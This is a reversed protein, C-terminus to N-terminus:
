SPSIRESEVAPVFRRLPSSSIEEKFLSVGNMPICLYVPILHQHYGTSSVEIIAKCKPLPADAQAIRFPLDISVLYKKLVWDGDEVEGGLQWRL